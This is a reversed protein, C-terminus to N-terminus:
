GWYKKKVKEWLTNAIQQDKFDVIAHYCFMVAQQGQTRISRGTEYAIDGTSTNPLVNEQKIDLTNIDKVKFIWSGDTSKYRTQINYDYNPPIDGDYTGQGKIGIGFEVSYARGYNTLLWSGGLQKTIPQWGDKIENIFGANLGSSNLYENARERVWVCCEYLLEDIIKPIQKKINKLQKLAEKVSKSNSINLQIKM